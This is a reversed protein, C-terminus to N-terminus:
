RKRLVERTRRKQMYEKAASTATFLDLHEEEELTVPTMAADTYGEAPEAMVQNLIRRYRRRMGYFGAYKTVFEIALKPYFSLPNEIALGPRRDCRRKIRIFGVDLPHIGEFVMPAHYALLQKLM